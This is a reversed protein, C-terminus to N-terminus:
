PQQADHLDAWNGIERWGLRGAHVKVQVTSRAPAAAPSASVDSAQPSPNPAAAVPPMSPEFVSVVREVDQGGFGDIEGASNNEHVLRPTSLWTRALRGAAGKVPLGTLPDLLYTRTAAEGDVGGPVLTNFALLGDGLIPNAISREGTRTSDAFDLLWGTGSAAQGDINVTAANTTGSRLRAAHPTLDTRTIHAKSASKGASGDDLLAYFSQASDQAASADSAEVYKGTGFLVMVGNGAWAVTPKSTIPQRRGAPDTAVFLLSPSPLANADGQWPLPASFDFRWVNGQLDGAWALVVTGDPGALMAPPGLANAADPVPTGTSLRFFNGNHNWAESFPKDFPLLFLRGSSSTDKRGDGAYANYGGPVVLMDAIRVVNDPTVTRFRAFQPASALNGMGSDDKETFEFLVDRATFGDPNSVDLAVVGQASAGMSGALVTKWAGGIRLDTSALGAGLWRSGTAALAPAVAKPLYRFLLKGNDARLAQLSGDDAHVHVADPRAGYAAAFRLDGDPKPWPGPHAIFLPASDPMVGAATAGPKPPSAALLPMSWGAVGSRELAGSAGATLATRALSGSHTAVDVRAEYLGANEGDTALAYGVSNAHGASTLAPLPTSPFDVVRPGNVASRGHSASLLGVGIMALMTAPVLLRCWLAPQRASM